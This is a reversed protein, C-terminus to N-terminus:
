DADTVRVHQFWAHAPERYSSFDDRQPSRFWFTYNALPDALFPGTSRYHRRDLHNKHLRGFTLMVGYLGLNQTADVAFRSCSPSFHCTSGDVRSWTTKYVWFWLKAAEGVPGHRRPNEAVPSRGIRSDRSDIAGRGWPEFSTHNSTAVSHGCASALMALVALMLLVPKTRMRTPKSSRKM